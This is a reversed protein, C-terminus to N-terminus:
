PEPFTHFDFDGLTVNGNNGNVRGATFAIPTIAVWQLGQLEQEARLSIAATGQDFDFSGKYGLNTAEWTKEASNFAIYGQYHNYYNGDPPNSVGPGGMTTCGAIVLGAAILMFGEISNQTFRKKM